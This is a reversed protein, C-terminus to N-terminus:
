EGSSGKLYKEQLAKAQLQHMQEIRSQLTQVHNQLAQVRTEMEVFKKNQAVLTSAIAAANRNVIDVASLGPEAPLVAVGSALTDADLPVGIADLVGNGNENAM